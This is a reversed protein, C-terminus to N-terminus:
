VNGEAWCNIMNKMKDHRLFVVFKVFTGVRGVVKEGFPGLVGIYSVIDLHNIIRGVICMDSVVSVFDFDKMGSGGKHEDNIVIVGPCPNMAEKLLKHEISLLRIGMKTQVWPIMGGSITGDSIGIKNRGVEVSEM